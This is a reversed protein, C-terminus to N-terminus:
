LVIFLFRLLDKCVQNGMKHLHPFIDEPTKQWMEVKGNSCGVIIRPCYCIESFNQKSKGAYKDGPAQGCSGINMGLLVVRKRRM